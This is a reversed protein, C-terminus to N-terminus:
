TFNHLSGFCHKGLQSSKRYENIRHQVSCLLLTKGLPLNLIDYFAGKDSAEDAGSFFSNVMVNDDLYM